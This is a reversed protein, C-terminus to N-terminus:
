IFDSWSVGNYRMWEEMTQPMPEDDEEDIIVEDYEEDYQHKYNSCELYFM